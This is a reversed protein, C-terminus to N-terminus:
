RTPDLISREGTQRVNGDSVREVHRPEGPHRSSSARIDRSVVQTQPRRVRPIILFDVGLQGSNCGTADIVEVVLTRTRPLSAETDRELCMNILVLVASDHTRM